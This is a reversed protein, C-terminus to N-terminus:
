LLLQTKKQRPVVDKVFQNETTTCVVFDRDRSEKTGTIKAYVPSTNKFYIGLSIILYMIHETSINKIMPTIVSLM